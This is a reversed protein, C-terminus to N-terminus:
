KLTHVVPDIMDLSDNNQHLPECPTDEPDPNAFSPRPVTSRSWHFPHGEEMKRHGLPMSEM